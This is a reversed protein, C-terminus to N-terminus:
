GHRPWVSGYVDKKTYRRDWSWPVDALSFLLTEDPSKSHDIL